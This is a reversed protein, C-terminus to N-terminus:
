WPERQWSVLVWDASGATVVGKCYRCAGAQDLDLHAGCSPCRSAPLGGGPPTVAGASRAFTLDETWTAGEPGGRLTTGTPQHRELRQGSCTVRVRVEETLPSTTAEVVYADVARWLGEFSIDATSRLELLAQHARYLGNSMFTRTCTADGSVLSQCILTTAAFAWDALARARFGPDRRAIAATGANISAPEPVPRLTTYGWRAQAGSDLDVSAGYRIGKMGVQSMRVVMMPMIFVPFMIIVVLFILARVVYVPNACGRPKGDRGASDMGRTAWNSVATFGFWIRDSWPSKDEGGPM